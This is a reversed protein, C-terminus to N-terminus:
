PPPPAEYTAFWAAILPPWASPEPRDKVRDLCVPAPTDVVIVEVVQLGESATARQARTAGYCTLYLTGGLPRSALERVVGNRAARAVGWLEPPRDHAPLGSFAAVIRDLDLLIDGRRM